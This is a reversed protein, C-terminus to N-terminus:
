AAGRLADLQRMWEDHTTVTFGRREARAVAESETVVDVVGEHGRADAVGVFTKEGDGCDPLLLWLKLLAHGGGRLETRTFSTTLVARKM